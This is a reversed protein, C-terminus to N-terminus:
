SGGSRTTKVHSMSGLQFSSLSGALVLSISTRKM